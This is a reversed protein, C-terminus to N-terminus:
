TAQQVITYSANNISPYVLILLNAANTSFTTNVSLSNQNVTQVLYYTLNTNNVNLAVIDGIGINGYVNTATIVNSTNTVNGYAYHAFMTNSEIVCYTNSVVYTILKAQTKRTSDSTNFVILDGVNGITGFNTGSGLIKTTGSGYSPLSFEQTPITITNGVNTSLNTVYPMSPGYTIRLEDLYGTMYTSQIQSLADGGLMFRSTTNVCNNGANAYIGSTGWANHANTNAVRKGGVYMVMQTNSSDWVVAVHYWTNNAVVGLGGQINLGSWSTGLGQLYLYGGTGVYLRICADGDNYYPTGTPYGGGYEWIIQQNNTNDAIQMFCEICWNNSTHISINVTNPQIPAYILGNNTFRVSNGFAPAVTVTGNQTPSVGYTTYAYNGTDDSFANSGVSADFHMLMKTDSQVSM